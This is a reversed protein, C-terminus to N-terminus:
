VRVELSAIMDGELVFFYQLDVPSGIFNGSVHSTVVIKGDQHECAFPESTYAYKRFSNTKWQKIEALGNYTQGEDKVIATKIFCLAVVESDGSKAAFYTDIPKPLNITM